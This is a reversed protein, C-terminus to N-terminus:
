EMMDQLGNLYGLYVRGIQWGVYLLIAVYCIKPLMAAAHRISSSADAEYLKM